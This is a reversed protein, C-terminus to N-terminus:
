KSTIPKSTVIRLLINGVGMIQALIEPSVKGEQGLLNAVELGAALLVNFGITKSKWWPKGNNEAM